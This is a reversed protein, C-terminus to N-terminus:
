AGTVEPDSNVTEAVANILKIIRKAMFYGPAAKGGFIFARPPVELAPNDKLRKYLTAIHLVNLHQRKYEHIRKVQIDFLWTPDLEIGTHAHIWGALRGLGGNGLGPEEECALIEDLDQGLEDMATRTAEEVGLNVLNNGLHPGVLYKASLYAAVKCDHDFYTQTAARGASCM